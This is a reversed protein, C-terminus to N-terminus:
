MDLSEIGEALEQIGLKVRQLAEVRSLPGEENVESVTEEGQVELGLADVIRIGSKSRMSSPTPSPSTRRRLREDRNENGFADVLRVSPSRKHKRPSRSPPTIPTIPEPTSSRAGIESVAMPNTTQSSSDPLTTNFENTADPDFRVKLAGKRTTAPTLAWAGPPAPTKLPFNSARGISGVPTTLGGENIISEADSDAMRSAPTNMWGGPPLPTRAMTARSYNSKLPLAGDDSSEVFGNVSGKLTFQERTFPGPTTLWGGPPKPTKFTTSGNILRGEMGDPPTVDAPTPSILFEPLSEQNEDVSPSSPPGPLDPLGKPPPPTEFQPKSDNHSRPPTSLVSPFSIHPENTSIFNEYSENVASVHEQASTEESLTDLVQLTPTRDQAAGNDPQFSTQVTESNNIWHFRVKM